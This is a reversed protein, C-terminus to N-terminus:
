EAALATAFQKAHGTAPPLGTVNNGQLSKGLWTAVVIEVAAEFEQQLAPQPQM